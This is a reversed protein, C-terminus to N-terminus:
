AGRRVYGMSNMWGSRIVAGSSISKSPRGTSTTSSRTTSKRSLCTSSRRDARWRMSFSSVEITGERNELLTVTAAGAGDFVIQFFGSFYTSTTSGQNVDGFHGGLYTGNLSAVTFTGSTSQRVLFGFQNSPNYTSNFDFAICAADGSQLIGGALEGSSNVMTGNANITLTDAFAGSLSSAPSGVSPTSNNPNTVILTNTDQTGSVGGVGDGTVVGFMGEYSLTTSGANYRTGYTTFYYNSNMVSAAAATARSVGFFMMHSSASDYM